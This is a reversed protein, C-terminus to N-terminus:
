DTDNNSQPRPFHFKTSIRKVYHHVTHNDITWTFILRPM